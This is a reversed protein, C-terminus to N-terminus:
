KKPQIKQCLKKYLKTIQDLHKETYSKTCLKYFKFRFDPYRTRINFDNVLDLLDIEKESLKLNTLKCLRVLDHSYPAEKKTDKVVHAKLIKELVIHGFFLTNAYRKSKFLSIMTDYDHAATTKWYNILEKITIKVPM